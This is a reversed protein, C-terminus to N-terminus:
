EGVYVEVIATTRVAGDSGVIRGGFVSLFSSVEFTKVEINVTEGPKVEGTFEAYLVKIARVRAGAACAEAVSDHSALKVLCVGAQAIAEVLLVGPYVPDGPFHGDFVLDGRRVSMRAAIATRDRAIHTLGDILLMNGRHPLLEKVDVQIEIPQNLRIARSEKIWNDLTERLM